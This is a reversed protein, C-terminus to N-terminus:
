KVHILKKSIRQYCRLSYDDSALLKKLFLEKCINKMIGSATTWLHETFFTNNSIESFECSKGFNRLVGKKM